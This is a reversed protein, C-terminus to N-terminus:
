KHFGFDLPKPIWFVALSQFRSDLVHYGPDVVHFGCDLVTQTKKYMYLKRKHFFKLVMHVSHSLSLPTIYLNKIPTMTCYVNIARKVLRIINTANLPINYIVTLSFNHHAGLLRFNVNFRQPIVRFFQPEASQHTM